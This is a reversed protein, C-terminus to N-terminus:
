YIIMCIQYSISSYIFGKLLGSSLMNRAVSESIINNISTHILRLYFLIYLWKLLRLGPCFPTNWPNFINCSHWNWYNLPENWPNDWSFIYSTICRTLFKFFTKFLCYLLLTPLIPIFDSKNFSCEVIQAIFTPDLSFWYKYHYYSIVWNIGKIFGQCYKRVLINTISNIVLEQNISHM